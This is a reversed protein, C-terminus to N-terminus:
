VDCVCVCVPLVCRHDDDDDLFCFFGLLIFVLIRVKIVM